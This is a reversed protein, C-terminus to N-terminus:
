ELLAVGKPPRKKKKWVVMSLCGWHGLTFIQKSISRHSLTLVGEGPSAEDLSQRSLLATQPCVHM